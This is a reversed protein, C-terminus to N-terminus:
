DKVKSNNSQSKLREIINRIEINQYGVVCLAQDCVEDITDWSVDAGKGDVLVKLIETNGKFASSVFTDRFFDKNLTAGRAILIKAVEAHNKDAAIFLATWDFKDKTNVDAGADLLIRVVEFYGKEAARMLATRNQNDKAELDAGGQAILEEIKKHDGNKAADIINEERSGKAALNEVKTAALINAATPGSPQWNSTANNNQINQVKQPNLPQSFCISLYLFSGAFM